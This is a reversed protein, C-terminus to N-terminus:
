QNGHPIQLPEVANDMIKQGSMVKESKTGPMTAVENGVEEFWWQM